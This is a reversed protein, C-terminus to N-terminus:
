KMSILDMKSACIATEMVFDFVKEPEVVGKSSVIIKGLAMGFLVPWEVPNPSYRTIKDFVKEWLLKFSERLEATSKEGCVMYESDGVGEAVKKVIPAVDPIDGEPCIEKYAAAVYGYISYAGGLLYENISDGFIFREGNAATVFKFIKRPDKKEKMVYKFLPVAQCSYGALGSAALLVNHINIKGNEDTFMKILSSSIDASGYKVGALPDQKKEAQVKEFFEKEEKTLERKEM